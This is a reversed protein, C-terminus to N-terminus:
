EAPSAACRFGLTVFGDDPHSFSRYAARVKFWYDTEWGGGRLARVEGTTPGTPNESPSRHYYDFFYWDAVWENVNGAMDLAGCWSAGEPYLGVPATNIYTELGEFHLRTRDPEDGWPFIHGEPGRAAYEWEAETPLRAGVWQCYAAAQYWSVNVVPSSASAVNGYYPLGYVDKMETRSPPDCLGAAVCASYQGNTVEYRDLWFGDLTVTHAPQEYQFIDPTCLHNPIEESCLELAYDVEEDTSGMTFEGAPVYVMMMWDEDRIRTDGLSFPVLTPTPTPVETPTPTPVQTPTPIPVGTPTQTPWETPAVILMPGCTCATVAIPLLTLLLLVAITKNMKSM